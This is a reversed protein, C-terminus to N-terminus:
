KDTICKKLSYMQQNQGKLTFDSKPLPKGGKKDEMKKPSPSTVKKLTAGEKQTVFLSRLVKVARLEKEVDSCVETPVTEGEVIGRVREPSSAKRSHKKSQKGRSDETLSTKKLELLTHESSM